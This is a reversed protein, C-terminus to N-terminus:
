KPWIIHEALNIFHRFKIEQMFITVDTIGNMINYNIQDLLNIIYPLVCRSTDHTHM